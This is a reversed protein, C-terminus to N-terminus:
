PWKRYSHVSMVLPKIGDYIRIFGMFEWQIVMFVGNEIVM